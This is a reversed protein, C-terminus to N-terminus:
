SNKRSKSRAADAASKEGAVELVRGERVAARLSACRNPALDQFLKAHRGATGPEFRRCASVCACYSCPLVKELGLAEMVQNSTPIFQGQKLLLGLENLFRSAEPVGEANGSEPRSGGLFIYRFMADSKESLWPYLVAQTQWGLKVSKRYNSSLKGSKFDLLEVISGSRDIRDIKGVVKLVEIGPFEKEFSQEVAQPVACEQGAWEFYAAAMEVVQRQAARRFVGPLATLAFSVEPTLEPLKEVLSQLALCDDELMKAAIASVTDNGLHPKVAQELLKHLLTGRSLADLGHSLSLAELVKWRVVREGYFRFPCRALAELSTVSVRGGAFNPQGLMCGSWSPDKGRKAASDWLFSQTAGRDCSAALKPAVFLVLAPPLLSGKEPELSALLAAQELPARAIRRAPSVTEGREKAVSEWRQLYRQIWPTPAVAKGAADTERVVWHVRAAATNILFFLLLMEETVRATVPLRHGIQNAAIALRTSGKESMLSDDAVRFPIQGAALGMIVVARATVGRSRMLPLFLVARSIPDRQTRSGDSEALLQAWQRLEIELSPRSRAIQETAAILPALLAADNMWRDRLCRLTELAKRAPIRTSAGAADDPVFKLIEEILKKEATNFHVQRYDDEEDEANIEKIELARRWALGGWIGLERVKTEFRDIDVDQAVAINPCARLLALVWEAPAQEEWIKALMRLTNGEPTPGCAVDAVRLPIGFATFIEQVCEAYADAQPAVVLIDEPALPDNEDDLWTRIRVAASIAEARVGAARQYSLFGRKSSIDGEPFTALFFEAPSATATEAMIESTFSFRLRLDQLVSEAFSFAPHARGKQWQWPYYVVTELRRSLASLWELHVDIWDYFGYIYIRPLQGAEARLAATLDQETAKEIHEPLRQLLLPSWAVERKDLLQVWRMYIRLLETDRPSLEPEDSLEKVKELDGPGFGGEALNVFAARLMGPGGSITKLQALPSKRPLDEVLEWLLLDLLANWPITTTKALSVCLRQGFRPLNVVRVNGFAEAEARLALETRLHNALTASPVIVWRPGLGEAQGADRLDKLLRAQLEPFTAATFLTCAM